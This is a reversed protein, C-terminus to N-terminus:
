NLYWQVVMFSKSNETGKLTVNKKIARYSRTISRRSNDLCSKSVVVQVYIFHLKEWSSHKTSYYLGCLSAKENNTVPKKYITCRM